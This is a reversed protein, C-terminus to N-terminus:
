SPRGDHAVPSPPSTSAGASSCSGPAAPLRRSPRGAERWPPQSAWRSGSAGPAARASSPGPRSVAVHVMVVLVNDAVLLEVEENMVVVALEVEVVVVLAVAVVVVRVVVESVVIEDVEVLELVEDDEVVLPVSVAVADVVVELAVDVLEEVVVEEDLEDRVVVVTVCDFVIGFM